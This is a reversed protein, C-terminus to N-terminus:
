LGALKELYQAASLIEVGREKAIELKAPGPAPGCVLISLSKTVARTVHHNAKTALIELEARAADDFGTFCVVTRKPKPPPGPLGYVIGWAEGEGLAQIEEESLQSRSRLIQCVKESPMRWKSRTLGAQELKKM